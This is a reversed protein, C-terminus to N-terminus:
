PVRMGNGADRYEIIRMAPANVEEPGYQQTLALIADHNAEQGSSHVIEYRQVARNSAFLIRVSVGSVNVLLASCASQAVAARPTLAAILGASLLALTAAIAIRVKLM